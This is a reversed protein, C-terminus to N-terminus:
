PAPMEECRHTWTMSVAAFWIEAVMVEALPDLQLFDASFQELRRLAGRKDMKKSMLLNDRVHNSLPELLNWVKLGKSRAAQELGRVRQLQHQMSEKDGSLIADTWDELETGHM